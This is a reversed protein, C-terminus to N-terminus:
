KQNQKNWSEKFQSFPQAHQTQVKHRQALENEKQNRFQEDIAAPNALIEDPCLVKYHAPSYLDMDTIAKQATTRNYFNCNKEESFSQLFYLVPQQKTVDNTTYDPVLAVSAFREKNYLKHPYVFEGAKTNEDIRLTEDLQKALQEDEDNEDIKLTEDLQKALQEDEENETIEDTSESFENKGSPEPKKKLDEIFQKNNKQLVEGYKSLVNDVITELQKPNKYAEMDVVLPFPQHTRAIVITPACGYMNILQQKLQNKINTADMVTNTFESICFGAKGGTEKRFVCVVV